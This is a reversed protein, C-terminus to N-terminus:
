RGKLMSPYMACSTERLQDHKTASIIYVNVCTIIVLNLKGVKTHGTCIHTHIVTENAKFMKTICRTFLHLGCWMASDLLKADLCKKWKLFSMRIRGTKLPTAKAIICQAGM